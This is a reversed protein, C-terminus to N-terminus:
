GASLLAAAAPKMFFLELQVNDPDRFVLVDWMEDEHIGSHAIGREDLRDRWADLLERSAVNFSLHDLGVRHEDFAGDVGREHDVLGIIVFSEPHLLYRSAFHHEDNRGDLLRQMQFLEAYFSESRDLDSVTLDIHSIGTITTM